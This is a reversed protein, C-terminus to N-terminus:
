GMREDCLEGYDCWQCSRYEPTAGFEGQEIREVVDVARARVAALEEKSIEVMWEQDMRLYWHGVQGVRRKYAGEVGLWYLAMQYDQRLQPRSTRKKSSKYDIVELIGDKMDVRDVKGVLKRGELDLEIWEEVGMITSDKGEQHVMFERIMEGADKRDQEEQARSEYDSSSWVRDLITLADEQSVKEGEMMRKTILEIANHVASGLAFFTKPEGPIGLVYGYWYQKPCTEYLNLRSPSYHINRLHEEQMKRTRIRLKGLYEGLDLEKRVSLETLDTGHVRALATIGDLAEQWERRQIGGIIADLIAGEETHAPEEPEGESVGGETLDYGEGGEFIEALFISQPTEGKNTGYKTCYSVYCEDMARTLAVYLLRREEQEHLEQLNGSPALGDALEDPIEIKYHQFRGPFRNQNLCPIFVVPFERGKSGHVTMLHVRGTRLNKEEDEYGLDRLAGLHVLFDGLSADPYIGLFDSTLRHFQNLLRIHDTDGAAIELKLFTRSFILTRVLELLGKEGRVQFLSEMERRFRTLPDPNGPFGDLDWLAEWLSLDRERAFRSLKPIDGPVIGHVPRLLIHGLAPQHLVPDHLVKLYSVLARIIPERFYARSGLVEFPIDAKELQEVLLRADTRRRVLIAIDDWSRGSEHFEKVNRVISVAQDWDSGFGTITIPPGADKETVLEKEEREPNHSILNGAVTQINGTCRYNRKLVIDKTPLSRSAFYNRFEQINTLYAGRFRYISQDDDGVITVNGEPVLGLLIQLQVFDTDQFEDVIFYKIRNRYRELIAPKEQFLKLTLLQMDGFDMLGHERKFDEYLRYARTFDRLKLPEENGNDKSKIVQEAVYDELREVPINEQKFRAIAGQFTAALEIPRPPITYHSIGMSDLNELLFAKQFEETFIPGRANIGLELSHERVVDYCFSHFTSIRIKMSLPILGGIRERMERAAKETFTLALIEGPAYGKEQVLYAAKHVTVRTKGTGPGALILLPGDLYEVAERQDDNLPDLLTGM